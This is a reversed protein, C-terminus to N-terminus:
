NPKLGFSPPSCLFSVSCFLHKHKTPLKGFGKRRATRAWCSDQSLCIHDQLDPESGQWAELERSGTAPASCPAKDGLFSGKCDSCSKSLQWLVRPSQQLNVHSHGRGLYASWRWSNWLFPSMSLMHCHCSSVAGELAAAPATGRSRSRQLKAKQKTPHLCHDGGSGGRFNFTEALPSDNELEPLAAATGHKGSTESLETRVLSM